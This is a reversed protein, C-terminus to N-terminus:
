LPLMLDLVILMFACVSGGEGGGGLGEGVRGGEEGGCLNM